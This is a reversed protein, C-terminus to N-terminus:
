MLILWLKLVKSNDHMALWQMHTANAAVCVHLVTSGIEHNIRLINYLIIIIIVLKDMETLVLYKM